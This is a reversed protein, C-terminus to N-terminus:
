KSLIHVGPKTCLVSTLSPSSIEATETCTCMYEQRRTPIGSHIHVYMHTLISYSCTGVYKHTQTSTSM